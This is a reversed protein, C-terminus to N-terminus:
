PAGCRAGAVRRWSPSWRSRVRVCLHAPQDVAVLLLQDRELFEAGSHGFQSTALCGQAGLQVGEVAVQAVGGAALKEIAGAVGARSSEYLV